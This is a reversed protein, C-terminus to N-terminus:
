FENLNIKKVDNYVSIDLLKYSIKKNNLLVWKRVSDVSFRNLATTMPATHVAIINKCGISLNGIDKLNMGSDRTCDVDGIKETTIVKYGESKLKRTLKIFDEPIYAFQGSAGRSNIILFDYDDYRRKELDPQYYLVDKIDKFSHKLNNRKALDNYFKLYFEDYFYMEKVEEQKVFYEAWYNNAQIWTDVGPSYTIGAIKINKYNHHNLEQLYNNRCSYEVEIDNNEVINNVFILSYINDGLHYKNFMKISSM